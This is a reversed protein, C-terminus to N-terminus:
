RRIWRTELVAKTLQGLLGNPGTLAVGQERAWAALDEAVKQETTPEPKDKKRSTVDGLTATM